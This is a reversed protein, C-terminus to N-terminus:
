ASVWGPPTAQGNAASGVSLTIQQMICTHQTACCKLPPKLLPEKWHSLRCPGSDTADLLLLLLLCSRRRRWLLGEAM